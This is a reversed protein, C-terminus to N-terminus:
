TVKVILGDKLTVQGVWVRGLHTIHPWNAVTITGTDRYEPGIIEGLGYMSTETYRLPKGINARCEKKSPYRAILTM